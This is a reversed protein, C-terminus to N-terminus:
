RVDVEHLIIEGTKADIVFEHEKRNIYAEVEYEFLGDEVNFEIKWRSVENSELNQDKLIIDKVESKSIFALKYFIFCSLLLIVLITGIIILTKKM